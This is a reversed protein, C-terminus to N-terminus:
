RFCSNMFRTAYWGNKIRFRAFVLASALVHAWVGCSVISFTTALVITLGPVENSAVEGNKQKSPDNARRVILGRGTGIIKTTGQLHTMSKRFDNGWERATVQPQSCNSDASVLSKQQGLLAM